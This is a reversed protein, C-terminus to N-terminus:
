TEPELVADIFDVTTEAPGHWITDAISLTNLRNENQLDCIVAKLADRLRQIEADTSIVHVLFRILRVADTEADTMYDSGKRELAEIVKEVKETTLQEGNGATHLITM